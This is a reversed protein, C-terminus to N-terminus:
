NTTENPDDKKVGFLPAITAMLASFKAIELLIENTVILPYFQNVAALVTVTFASGSRIQKIFAPTQEKIQSFGIKIKNM